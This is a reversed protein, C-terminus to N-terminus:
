LWITYLDIELIEGNEESQERKFAYPLGNELAITSSEALKQQIIQETNPVSFLLTQVRLTASNPTNEYFLSFDEDQESIWNEPIQFQIINNLSITKM